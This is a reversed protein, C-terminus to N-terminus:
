AGPLMPTSLMKAVSVSHTSDAIAPVITRSSPSHDHALGVFDGDSRDNGAIGSARCEYEVLRHAEPTAEVGGSTADDILQMRLM